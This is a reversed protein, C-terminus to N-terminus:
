PAKERWIAFPRIDFLKCTTAGYSGSSVNLVRYAGQPITVLVSKGPDMASNAPPAEFRTQFFLQKGCENFRCGVLPAAFSVRFPATDAAKLLTGQQAHDAAFLLAGAPERIVLARNEPNANTSGDILRVTVTANQPLPAAQGMPLTVYVAATLVEGSTGIRRLRITMTGGNYVVSTIEGTGTQVGSQGGDSAATFFGQDSSDIRLAWGSGLTPFGNAPCSATCAGGLCLEGVGTCDLQSMCATGKRPGVEVVGDIIRFEKDVCTQDPKPYVAATRGGDPPDVGQVQLQYCLQLNFTEDLPGNEPRLCGDACGSPSQVQVVGNWTREFTDGPLVKRVFSPSGGDCVCNGSCVQDCSLCPCKLKEDFGFWTGGVNRQVGLGLKDDTDDVFIAASTTNKLRLTVPSPDTPSCRCGLASVILFSAALSRM